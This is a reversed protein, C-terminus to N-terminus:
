LSLAAIAPANAKAANTFRRKALFESLSLGRRALEQFYITDAKV